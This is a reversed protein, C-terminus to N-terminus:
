CIIYAYFLSIANMFTIPLPKSPALISIFRTPDRTVPRAHSGLQTPCRGFQAASADTTWPLSADKCTGVFMIGKQLGERGGECGPAGRGSYDKEKVVM